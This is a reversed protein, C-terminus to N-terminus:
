AAASFLFAVGGIGMLSLPVPSLRRTGLDTFDTLANTAPDSPDYYAIQNQGIRPEDKLSTDWGTFSKGNVVFSYGYRNHNAPEHAIITALATKETKGVTRDVM